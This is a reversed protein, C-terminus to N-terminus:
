NAPPDHQSMAWTPTGFVERNGAGRENAIEFAARGLNSREALPQNQFARGVCAGDPGNVDATV